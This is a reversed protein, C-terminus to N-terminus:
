VGSSYIRFTGDVKATYKYYASMSKENINVLTAGCLISDTDFPISNQAAYHLAYSGGVGYLVFGQKLQSGVYAFSTDAIM